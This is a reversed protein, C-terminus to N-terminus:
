NETFMPRNNEDLEGSEEKEALYDILHWVFENLSRAAESDTDIRYMPSNGVMRSKEVLGWAQLTDIHDYFSSTGIGGLRCIESPNLDDGEESMLVELIRVKSPQGLVDVLITGDAYVESDVDRLNPPQERQM